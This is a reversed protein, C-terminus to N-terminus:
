QLTVEALKVNFQEETYLKYREAGHKLTHNKWQKWSLDDTLDFLNCHSKGDSLRLGRGISQLNRVRSKSPSAFIINEISPINVGTSLTGVSAVIIASSESKLIHRMQERDEVDVGGHIFFVKRDSSVKDVIMDYLISGHKEVFQYLVLTNGTSNVALNRIFKNRPQYQVLFDVENQYDAKYMAKRSTEPHKLLLASVRLDSLQGQDQLKKTTTVQYVPGFIGELVLRNLKKDDLSGTTGIRYKTNSMKEMIGTLSQARFLHSEDGLVVDFQDYWTKPQKFISQWTSILCSKEFHKPFGSYLRQCNTEVDWGNGSSYDAFDSYMQEVLSQTPTILLMKRGHALNWRCLMYIILSKGSGTPSLLVAREDVIAKYLADLQYERVDIPQGRSCVNLQDVFQKVIEISITDKPDATKDEIAYGSQEAFTHVYGILGKYLTKRVPDLLRKKGDWIRAKFAPMFRAGPVEFTFFAGLEAEVGGDDSYVRVFAEDFPAITITSMVVGGLIAEL